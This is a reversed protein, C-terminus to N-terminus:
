NQQNDLKFYKILLHNTSSLDTKNENGFFDSIKRDINHLNHISCYYDIYLKEYGIKLFFVIKKKFVM